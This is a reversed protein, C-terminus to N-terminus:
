RPRTSANRLTWYSITAGTETNKLVAIGRADVIMWSIRDPTEISGEYKGSRTDYVDILKGMRKGIGHYAVLLSDGTRGIAIATSTNDRLSNLPPTDIGPTRWVVGSSNLLAIGADTQRAFICGNSGLAGIVGQTTRVFESINAQAQGQGIVVSATPWPFELARVRRLASDLLVIPAGIDMQSVILRGDSLYCASRVLTAGGVARERVLRGFRSLEIAKGNSPDFVVFSGNASPIIASPNRLEGPGSGTAGFTWVPVGTTRSLAVVRNASPDLVAIVSDSLALMSPVAFLTDNSTISRQWEIQVRNRFIRRNGEPVSADKSSSCASVLIAILWVTTGLRTVFCDLLKGLM